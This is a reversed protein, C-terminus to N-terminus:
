VAKYEEAIIRKQKSVMRKNSKLLPALSMTRNAVEGHPVQLAREMSSGKRQMSVLYQLEWNPTYNISNLSEWDSLAGRLLM